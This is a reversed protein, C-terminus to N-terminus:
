GMSTEGSSRRSSGGGKTESNPPAVMTTVKTPITGFMIRTTVVEGDSHDLPSAELDIVM